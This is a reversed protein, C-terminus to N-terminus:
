RYNDFGISALGYGLSTKMYTDLQSLATELYQTTTSTDSAAQEATSAFSGTVSDFTIKPVSTKTFATADVPHTTDTATLLDDGKADTAKIEIYQIQKDKNLTLFGTVSVDGVLTTGKGTIGAAITDPLVTPVAVTVTGSAPIESGMVPLTFSQETSAIAKATIDQGAVKFTQDTGKTEIVAKLDDFHNEVPLAVTVKVTYKKKGAKATLKTSGDAVPTVTVTKKNKAGKIALVKKDAVSWTVKKANKLTVKYSKNETIKLSKASLKVAKKTAAEATVQPTAIVPAVTFVMTAAVAAAAVRKMVANKM